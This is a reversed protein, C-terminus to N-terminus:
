MLAVELCKRMHGGGTRKFELDGPTETSTQAEECRLGSRQLNPMQFDASGVRHSSSSLLRSLM